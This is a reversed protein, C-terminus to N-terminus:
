SGAASLAVWEELYSIQTEKVAKISTSPHHSLSGIWLFSAGSIDITEV